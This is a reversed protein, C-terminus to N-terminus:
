RDVYPVERIPARWLTMSSELRANAAFRATTLGSIHSCGVMDSFNGLFDQAGPGDVRSDSGLITAQSM